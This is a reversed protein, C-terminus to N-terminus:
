AGRLSNGFAFMIITWVCGYVYNLVFIIPMLPHCFGGRRRYVVFQIDKNDVIITLRKIDVNNWAIYQQTAEFMSESYNVIFVCVTVINPSTAHRIQTCSTTPEIVNLTVFHHNAFKRKKTVGGLSWWLLKPRDKPIKRSHNQYILITDLDQHIKHDHKTNAITTRYTCTLTNIYM